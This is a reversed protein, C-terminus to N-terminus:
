CNHFQWKGEEPVDSLFVGTTLSPLTDNGGDTALQWIVVAKDRGGTTVLVSDDYSWKVNTVHASHGRYQRHKKFRGKCPYMFLRLLGQSDVGSAVLPLHYATAVANIDTLDMEPAWIGELTADLPCSLPSTWALEGTAADPILQRTGHPAEYFLQEGAGTNVQILRSGKHWTLHTVCSSPGRCLGVRRLGSGDQSVADGDTDVVYLDVVCEHSGVALFHGDPSFKVDSISEVRHHVGGVKDLRPYTYLSVSCFPEMGATMATSEAKENGAVSVHGPVWNDCNDRRSMHQESPDTPDLHDTHLSYGSVHTELLPSKKLLKKGSFHLSCYKPDLTPPIKPTSKQHGPLLRISPLSPSTPDPTSTMTSVWSEHQTLPLMDGNSHCAPPSQFAHIYHTALKLSRFSSPLGPLRPACYGVLSRIAAGYLNGKVTASAGKQQQLM